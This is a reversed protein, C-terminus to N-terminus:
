AGSITLKLEEELKRAEDSEGQQENIRPKLSANSM